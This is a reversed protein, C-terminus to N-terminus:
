KKVIAPVKTLGALQSARFRREGVVLEYGTPTETVVLPQIVGHERISDALEQLAEQKFIKRPQFPNPVIRAIDLEQIQADSYSVKETADAVAEPLTINPQTQIEDM